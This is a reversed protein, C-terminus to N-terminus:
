KRATKKEPVYFSRYLRDGSKLVRRIVPYGQVSNLLVPRYRVKLPNTNVPIITYDEVGRESLSVRVMMSTRHSASHRGAFVFDGLSYFILGKGYREVPGIAHSQHGLILSVGADILKHGLAVQSHHPKEVPVDRVVEKGWHISVVIADVKDKVSRVAEVLLEDSGGAVGARNPAAWVSKPIVRDFAFFAVRTGRHWMYVPELAKLINSGVGAVAINKKHLRRKTDFMGKVGCDKAHNNSLSVIDFGGKVLMNISEPPSKFYFIEDKDSFVKLEESTIPAELNCFVIGRLEEKVKSFPYEWAYEEGYKKKKHEIIDNMVAFNLAVDGMATIVAPAKQPWIRKIYISNRYGYRLKNSDNEWIPEDSKLISDGSHYIIQPSCAIIVIFSSLFFFKRRKKIRQM